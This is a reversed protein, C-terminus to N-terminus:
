GRSPRSSRFRRSLMGGSLLAALSAAAAGSTGETGTHALADDGHRPVNTSVPRPLSRLTPPVHPRSRVPPKSRVSPTTQTPPQQTPQEAPAPRGLEEPHDGPNNATQNGFAPSGVGVVSVTNGSANVPLHVPLRIGNGTVVGPSDTASGDATAQRPAPPRDNGHAHDGANACRNGIAPNLLGVVNVTNGCASVPLYVPLQIGDGSILGPSDATSGDTTSDAHVSGAMAMVGSAAAVAILSNRNARRM